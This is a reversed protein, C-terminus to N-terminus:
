RLRGVGGARAVCRQRGTLAGNGRGFLRADAPTADMGVALICTAVAIELALLLGTTVTSM